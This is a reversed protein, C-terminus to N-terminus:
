ISFPVGTNGDVLSIYAKGDKTVKEMADYSGATWVGVWNPDAADVDRFLVEWQGWAAMDTPSWSVVVNSQYEGTPRQSTFESLTLHTAINFVEPPLVYGGGVAPKWPVPLNAPLSSDIAYVSSNYELLTVRRRMDGSRQAATVRFQKTFTANDGFAYPSYAEPKNAWRTIFRVGTQVGTDMTDTHTEIVGASNRVTMGYTTGGTLTVSRDINVRSGYNWDTAAVAAEVMVADWYCVGVGGIWLTLQDQDAATTLTLTVRQWQHLLNEDAFSQVYHSVGQDDHSLLRLSFDGGADSTAWCYASITYTTSPSVTVTQQLGFQVNSSHHIWSAAGSWLQTGGDPLTYPNGLMDLTTTQGAVVRARVLSPQNDWMDWEPFAPAQDFSPNDLLNEEYSVIRGGIGLGMAAHQLYVVDGVAIDLGEVDVELDVLRMLTENCALLYKAIRYAQAYSTTGYLTQRTADTLSASAAWEVTRVIFTVDDYSHTESATTRDADKYTIELSNARKSKDGWAQTLSNAVINGECLLHTPSAPKDPIAYYKAGYPLVVGRGEFSIINIADWATMFDDFVINLKYGQMVGYDDPNLHNEIYDAWAAFTTYDVRSYPIGCGYKPLIDSAAGTYSPHTVSGQVLMDYVAWAHNNAAKQEWATGNHVWVLSRECVGTVEIDGQLKETALVKIGLLPEGPYTFPAYVLSAVNALEATHEFLNNTNPVSNNNPSYEIRVDYTGDPVDWQYTWHFAKTTKRSIIFNDTNVLNSKDWGDTAKKYWITLSVVNTLYQTGLYLNYLGNPFYIDVFLKTGGSTSVTTQTFATTVWYRPDNPQTTGADWLDTWDVGPPKLTTTTVCEYLHWHAPAGVQRWVLEGVQYIAGDPIGVIPKLMTGQYNNQYTVEFGEIQGQVAMGSRTEYFCSAPDYNTIPNGNIEIDSIDADGHGVKWYTGSIHKGDQFLPAFYIHTPDIQESFVPASTHAKVCVFTYGNWWPWKVKDTANAQVEDGVAYAHALEWESVTRKDIGHGAFSYLAYKWQKDGEMTIYENKLVPKVRTKGYIVPMATGNSSTKNPNHEWGYSQSQEMGKPRKVPISSIIMGSLLSIGKIWPNPVMSGILSLAEMSDLFDNRKAM